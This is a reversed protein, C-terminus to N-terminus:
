RTNLERVNGATINELLRLAQGNISLIRGAPHLVKSYLTRYTRCYGVRERLSPLDM